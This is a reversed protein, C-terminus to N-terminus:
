IVPAAVVLMGLITPPKQMDLYIVGSSITVEALASTKKIDFWPFYSHVYGCLLKVVPAAMLLVGWAFPPSLMDLYFLKLLM